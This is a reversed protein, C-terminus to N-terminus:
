YFIALFSTKTKIVKTNIILALIFTTKATIGVILIKIITEYRLVGVKTSSLIVKDRSHM